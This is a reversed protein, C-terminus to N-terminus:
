IEDAQDQQNNQIDAREGSIDRGSICLVLLKQLDAAPDGSDEASATGAGLRAVSYKLTRLAALLGANWFSFSLNLNMTGFTAIIKYFSALHSPGATM